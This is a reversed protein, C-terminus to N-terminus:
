QRPVKLKINVRYRLWEDDHLRAEAHNPYVYGYDYPRNRGEYVNCVGDRIEQGEMFITACADLVKSM